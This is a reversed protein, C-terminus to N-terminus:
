NGSSQAGGQKPVSLERRIRDAKMSLDEAKAVLDALLKGADDLSRSAEMAKRDAVYAAYEKPDRQELVDLDGSLSSDLQKFRAWEGRLRVLAEAHKGLRSEVDGLKKEIGDFLQPAAEVPSIAMVEVEIARLDNEAHQSLTQSRIKEILNTIRRTQELIRARQSSLRAAEAGLSEYQKAADKLKILAVQDGLDPTVTRWEAEAKEWAQSLLRPAGLGAASSRKSECDEKASRIAQLRGNMAEVDTQLSQLSDTTEAFALTTPLEVEITKMREKLFNVGARVYAVNPDHDLKKLEAVCDEHAHQMLLHKEQITKLRGQYEVLKRSADELRRHCESVDSENRAEAIEAQVSKCEALMLREANGNLFSTLLEKVRDDLEQLAHICKEFPELQGQAAILLSVAKGLDRGKSAVAVARDVAQKKDPEFRAMLEGAGDLETMIKARLKGYRDLDALAPKTRSDPLWRAAREADPLNRSALALRFRVEWFGRFLLCGTVVILILAGITQAVIVRRRRLAQREIQSKEFLARYQGELSDLTTDSVDRRRAREIMAFADEYREERAAEKAEAVFLDRQHAEANMKDWLVRAEPSPIRGCLQTINKLAKKAPLLNQRALFQRIQELQTSLASDYRVSVDDFEAQARSKQRSDPHDALFSRLQLVANGLSGEAILAKVDRYCGEWVALDRRDAALGDLREAEALAARREECPPLSTGVKRCVAAADEYAERLELHKIQECAKRWDEARDRSDLREAVQKADQVHRGAPHKELYRALSTRAQIRDFRADAKEVGKLAEAWRQDDLQVELHARTADYDPMGPDIEQVAGLLAIAKAFDAGDVARQYDARLRTLEDLTKQAQGGIEALKRAIDAGKPGRLTACDVVSQFEKLVRGPKAENSLKEMRGLAESAKTFEAHSTGCGACFGKNVSNERGCEPCVRVMGAGCAECYKADLVNASGCSPCVNGEAASTDRRVVGGIGDLAELLEDASFYRESPNSRVCKFIVDSLGAESPIKSPDVNDPTEGSVLEYLTKGLAYIDATHNVSKADRRQEPPMYFPTGMGFGSMSLESEGGSRALGFDVLKPVLRESESKASPDRHLLVNAPKVDRHVLNNRHAFSLGQAVGKVLRIAEEVPLKGGHERLHDRLSGGEVLEMVIFPGKADEGRDYVSVINRHNMRAIAEAERRFRGLTTEWGPASLAECLLRKLAVMRGLKRDRAKWVVAFGGRGIENLLEYRDEIPESAEAAMPGPARSSAGGKRGAAMTRMEGISTPGLGDVSEVSVFSSRAGCEPCFKAEQESACGCQGCKFAMAKGEWKM